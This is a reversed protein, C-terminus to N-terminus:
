MCKLMAILAYLLLIRLLIAEERLYGILIILKLIHHVMKIMSPHRQEAYNAFAKQTENDPYTWKITTELKDFGNFLEISGVMGMAKYDSMLATVTPPTIESAQGHKSANNVYVNADCVKAINM